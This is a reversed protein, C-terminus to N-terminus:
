VQLSNKKIYAKLANKDEVGALTVLNTDYASARVHIGTLRWVKEVTKAHLSNLERPAWELNKISFDPVWGHKECTNLSGTMDKVNVDLKCFQEPMMDIYMCHLTLMIREININRMVAGCNMRIIKRGGVVSTGNHWGNGGYVEIKGDTYVKYKEKGNIKATYGILEGTSAELIPVPIIEALKQEIVSGHKYRKRWQKTSIIKISGKNNKTNNSSGAM